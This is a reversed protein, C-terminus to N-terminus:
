DIASKVELWRNMKLSRYATEIVRVSEIGDEASILPRELGKISNAFNKVQRIFAKLKNYGGGFMVWDSENIKKYKSCKWGVSLIGKTAIIDLYSEQDGNISWSLAATGISYLRTRLHLHVNDEVNLSQIKEKEEAKVKVIPGQLFRVIDVSHSGNDILVGGGSIRKKSRWCGGMDIQTQFVNKFFKVRGLIGSSLIEKARIIDEVFRYKSAMMLICKNEEAKQFMLAAQDSNLALPKECLVHIKNGLFFISIEAHHNPPTCIVAADLHNDDLAQRYDTFAKCGLARATSKAKEECIDVVSKLSCGPIKSIAKLYTQSVKGCGVLVLNLPANIKIPM